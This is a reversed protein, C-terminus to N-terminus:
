MWPQSHQRFYQNMGVPISLGGAAAPAKVALRHRLVFLPLHNQYHILYENFTIDRNYVLISGFKGDFFDGLTDSRAGVVFNENTDTNITQASGAEQTLTSTKDVGNVFCKIDGSGAGPPVVIAVHFWTNTTFIPDDFIIRGSTVAIAIGNEGSVAAVEAGISFSHGATGSTSNLTMLKRATGTAYTGIRVDFIFARPNTGYVSLDLLGGTTGVEDIGNLTLAYGPLRPNGGIAWNSGDTATLKLHDMFSHADRVRSGGAPGLAPVWAGVLGKWLDPYASEGAYRAYGQHYSPPTQRGRAM